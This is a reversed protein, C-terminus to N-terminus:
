EHVAVDLGYRRLIEVAESVRPAGEFHRYAMGLAEYKSQGLTHYPMLEVNRFGQEMLFSGTNELNGEGDNYGPILPMRILVPFGSAGLKRANALILGNDAGTLRKHEANDMHKIDLLVLDLVPLMAELTNWAAFGSTDLCTHYGLDDHLVGLLARLAKPQMLPEGGGCTVGGGSQMYYRWDKRAEEVLEDLGLMRGSLTRAERPCASACLGCGDCREREFVPRTGGRMAVADRPCTRACEACGACLNEFFMLQPEPRQSEANSCWACSLPCGKFFITTRIGPGDHTCFHQVDFICAKIDTTM